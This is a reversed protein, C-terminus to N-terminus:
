KPARMKAKIAAQLSMTDDALQFGKNGHKKKSKSKAPGAKDDESFEDDSNIDFFDVELEVKDPRLFILRGEATANSTDVDALPGQSSIKTSDLEPAGDEQSSMRPLSLTQPLHAPTVNPLIRDEIWGSTNTTNIPTEQTLTIGLDAQTYNLMQERQPARSAEINSPAHDHIALRSEDPGEDITDAAITSIAEGDTTPEQRLGDSRMRQAGAIHGLFNQDGTPESELDNSQMRQPGAINENHDTSKALARSSTNRRIRLFIVITTLVVVGVVSGVAIPVINASRKVQDDSASEASEPQSVAPAELIAAPPLGRKALESNIDSPNSISEVISAGKAADGDCDIETLIEIGAASLRRGSQVAGPELIALIRVKQVDVALVSAIAERFSDQRETTFEDATMPLGFTVRVVPKTPADVEAASM